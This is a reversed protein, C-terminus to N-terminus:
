AVETPDEDDDGGAWGSVEQLRNGHKLVDADAGYAIICAQSAKKVPDKGQAQAARDMMQIFLPHSFTVPDGNDTWERGNRLIGTNHTALMISSAVLGNIDSDGPKRNPKRRARDAAKTAREVDDYDMIHRYRASWGARHPMSWLVEKVEVPASLDAVMDDFVMGDPDAEPAPAAPLDARVPGGDAAPSPFTPETM